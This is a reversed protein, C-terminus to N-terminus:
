RVESAANNEQYRQGIKWMKLKMSIVILDMETMRVSAKKDAAHPLSAGCCDDVGASVEGAVEGSAFAVVLKGCSVAGKPVSANPAGGGEGAM